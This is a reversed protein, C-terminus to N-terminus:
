GRKSSEEGTKHQEMLKEFGAMHKSMERLVQELVDVKVLALMQDHLVKFILLTDGSELGFEKRANAPIVMQGRPGITISGLCKYEPSVNEIEMVGELVSIPFKHIKRIISSKMYIYYFEDIFIPM